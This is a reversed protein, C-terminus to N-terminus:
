RPAARWPFPAPGGRRLTGAPAACDEPLDGAVERELRLREAREVSRLMREEGELESGPV